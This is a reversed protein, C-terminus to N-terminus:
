GRMFHCNLGTASDVENYPAKVMHENIVIPCLGLVDIGIRLIWKKRKQDIIRIPSYISSQIGLCHRLITHFSNVKGLGSGKQHNTSNTGM